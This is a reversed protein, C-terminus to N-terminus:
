TKDPSELVLPADTSGMLGTRNDRVVLRLFYRGPPLEVTMLHQLGHEQIRSFNEPTLDANLTDNATRVLKGQPTIVAVLFDLSAHRLGGPDPEFLITPVDVIFGVQVPATAAPAPPPFVAARFTVLTAPMASLLATKLAANREEDETPPEKDKDKKALVLKATPDLAYYGRRYRLETGKRLVQVKLRRFKGDWEKSEPYYGLTYYTSGDGISRALAVDIDNRNRFARGGTAEALTEMTAFTNYLSDYRRNLEGGFTPGSFARGTRGRLSDAASAMPFGVLGRADVPYVAVQADSLVSATQRIENSYNRYTMPNSDDEPTLSFPFTASVWVLNKRGPYGALARAIARLAGLTISVRSDTLMANYEQEFRQLNAAANSPLDAIKAVAEPNAIYGEEPQRAPREPSYKEVAAILAKPDATFDQLILLDGTLVLIATRQNPQLQTRLYRLMQERAYSQDQMPTNLADILLVSLPGPPLRYEPKNTVVNPPLPAPAIAAQQVGGGPNELSFTAIRQPKGNEMLTFDDRTLDTVPRGQKDTVVVDVLVLRTTVRLVTAPVNTPAPPPQQSSLALGGLLVIATARWLRIWRM